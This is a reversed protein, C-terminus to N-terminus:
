LALLLAAAERFGVVRGVVAHGGERSLQLTRGKGGRGALYFSCEHLKSSFAESLFFSHSFLKNVNSLWSGIPVGARAGAWCGVAVSGELFSLFRLHHHLQGKYFKSSM